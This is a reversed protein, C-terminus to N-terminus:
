YYWPREVYLVVYWFLSNEFEGLAWCEFYLLLTDRCHRPLHPTRALHDCSPGSLSSVKAGIFINSLGRSRRLVQSAFVGGNCNSLFSLLFCLQLLAGCPLLLEDRIFAPSFPWVNRLNWHADMKIRSNNRSERKIMGPRRCHKEPSYGTRM